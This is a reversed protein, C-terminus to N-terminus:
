RVVEENLVFGKYWKDLDDGSLSARLRSFEAALRTWSENEVSIEMDVSGMFKDYAILLDVTNCDTM